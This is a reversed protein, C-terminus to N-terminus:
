TCYVKGDIIHCVGPEKYVKWGRVLLQTGIWIDVPHRYLELRVYKDVVSYFTDVDEKKIFYNTPLDFVAVHGLPKMKAYTAIIGSRDFSIQRTLFVDSDLILIDDEKGLLQVIKLLSKAIRLRREYMESMLYGPPVESDWTVVGPLEPIGDNYSTDVLILDHKVYKSTIGLTSCKGCFTATKM